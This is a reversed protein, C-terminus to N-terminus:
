CHVQLYIKFKHCCPLCWPRLSPEASSRGADGCSSCPPTHLWTVNGARINSTAEVDGGAQGPAITSAMWTLPYLQSFRDTTTAASNGSLKVRRFSLSMAAVDLCAGARPLVRNHMNLSLPNGYTQESGAQHLSNCLWGLWSRVDRENKIDDFKRPTPSTEFFQSTLASRLAENTASLDGVQSRETIVFTAIGAYVLFRLVQAADRLWM